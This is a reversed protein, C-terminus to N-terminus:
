KGFNFESTAYEAHTVILMKEMEDFMLNQALIVHWYHNYLTNPTM